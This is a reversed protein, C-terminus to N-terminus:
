VIDYSVVNKPIQPGKFYMPIRITEEYPQQKSCPIDYQGLHYGHDSTLLFYTNDFIKTNTKLLTVLEYILDDVSLLSRLRDRYLQDIWQKATDTIFPNTAVFSHKLTDSKNFNPTVPSITDNYRDAYWSAPTAPYHPAHPGIWIIFPKEDKLRDSVFQYSANGIYSTQYASATLNIQHSSSSGNAYKDYYKTGYFNGQACPCNIRDFGLTIPNNNCWFQGQNNVVKGFSGTMYGNSKFIQFMSNTNNFINYTSAVHMCNQGDYKVNHFNRGSITETRSPCCIPTSIFTNNFTMGENAIYKIANPM